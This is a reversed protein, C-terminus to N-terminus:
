SISLNSKRCKIGKHIKTLPVEHQRVQQMISLLEVEDTTTDVADAILKDLAEIDEMAQNRAPRQSDHFKALKKYEEETVQDAWINTKFEEIRIISIKRADNLIPELRSM